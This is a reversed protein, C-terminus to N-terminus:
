IEQAGQARLLKRGAERESAREVASVGGRRTAGCRACRALHFENAASVLARERRRIHQARRRRCMRARLLTNFAPFRRIVAARWQLIGHSSQSTKRSVGGGGGGGRSRDFDLRHIILPNHFHSARLNSFTSDILTLPIYNVTFRTFDYYM